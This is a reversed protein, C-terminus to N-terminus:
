LNDRVTVLDRRGIDSLPGEHVGEVRKLKELRASIKRLNFILDVIIEASHTKSTSNRGTTKNLM